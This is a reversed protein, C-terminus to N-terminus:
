LEDELDELMMLLDSRLVHGAEEVTLKRMPTVAAGQVVQILASEAQLLVQFKVDASLHRYEVFLLGAATQEANQPSYTREFNGMREPLPTHQMVAMLEERNM